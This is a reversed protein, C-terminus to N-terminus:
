ETEPYATQKEAEQENRLEIIKQNLLCQKEIIAAMHLQSTNGFMAPINEFVAAFPVGLEEFYNLGRAIQDATIKRLKTQPKM